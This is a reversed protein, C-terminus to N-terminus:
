TRGGKMNILVSRAERRRLAIHCGDLDIEIPDGLPAKRVFRLTKGPLIGMEILRRRIDDGATIAEILASQGPRMDTISPM